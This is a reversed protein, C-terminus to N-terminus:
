GKFEYGWCVISTNPYSASLGTIVTTYTLVADTASMYIPSDGTGITATGYTELVVPPIVDTGSVQLRIRVPGEAALFCGQLAFRFGTAPTWLTTASQSSTSTATKTVVNYFQTAARDAFAVPMGVFLIATLLWIRKKM